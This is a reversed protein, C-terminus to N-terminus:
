KGKKHNFKKANIAFQAEKKLKTSATKSKVVKKAASQVSMGKGKAYKTFKGKNKPNIKIAM